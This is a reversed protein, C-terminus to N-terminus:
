VAGNIVTLDIRVTMKQYTQRCHIPLYHLGDLELALSAMGRVLTLAPLKNVIM